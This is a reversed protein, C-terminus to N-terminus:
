IINKCSILQRENMTHICLLRSKSCLHVTEGCRGSRSTPDLFTVSSPGVPATRGGKGEQRVQCPRDMHQHSMQLTQQCAAHPFTDCCAKHRELCRKGFMEERVAIVVHTALRHKTVWSVRGAGVAGTKPLSGM